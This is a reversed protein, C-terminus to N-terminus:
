NGILKNVKLWRGEYIADCHIIGIHHSVDLRLDVKIQALM